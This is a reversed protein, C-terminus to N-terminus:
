NLNKPILLFFRTRSKMVGAIEGAQQGQGWYVDGRIVGKIAGGTDQAMLLRRLRQGNAPIPPTADLWVPVGMPLVSNDVALSYGATLPTKMTGIPGESPKADSLKFFIVSQNKLMLAKGADPNKIIWDRISQMSVQELTMYGNDVLWRGIPFYARGNKGAFGVGQVTGNEMIIRGSGQVEMFFADIENDVWIIEAHKGTLAGADIEARDYYPLFQGHELRGIKDERKILNYPIGYIPVHYRASKHFSGHLEPLYYGTLLGEFSGNDAIAYPKFWTEFFKKEGGNNVTIECLRKWDAITGLAFLGSLPKNDAQLRWIVCSRQFAQYALVHNDQEWGLLDHFETPYLLLEPSTASTTTPKNVLPKSPPNSCASFFCVLLATFIIITLRCLLLM